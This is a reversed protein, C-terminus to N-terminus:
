KLLHGLNAPDASVSYQGLGNKELTVTIQQGPQAPGGSLAELEANVNTGAEFIDTITTDEIGQEQALLAAGQDVTNIASKDIGLTTHSIESKANVATFGGAFGTLALAVASYGVLKRGRDTMHLPGEYDLPTSRSINKNNM